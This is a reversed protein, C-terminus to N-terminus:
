SLGPFGCLLYTKYFDPDFYQALEGTPIEEGIGALCGMGRIKLTKLLDARM